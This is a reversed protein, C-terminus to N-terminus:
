CCGMNCYGHVDVSHGSKVPKYNNYIKNLHRLYECLTMMDFQKYTFGDCFQTHCIHKRERRKPRENIMFKNGM